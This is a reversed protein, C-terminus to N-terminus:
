LPIRAPPPRPGFPDVATLSRCAPATHLACAGCTELGPARPSACLTLAFPALPSSTIVGPETDKDEVRRQNREKLTHPPAIDTSRYRHFKKRTRTWVHIKSESDRAILEPRHDGDLDTAVVQLLPVRTHIVQTTDTASLWVHLVSSGGSELRFHDRLGDGDVDIALFSQAAAVHPWLLVCAWVIWIGQRKLRPFHRMRHSSIYSPRGPM